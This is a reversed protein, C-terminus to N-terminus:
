SQSLQLLHGYLEILLEVRQHTHTSSLLDHGVDRTLDCIIHICLETFWVIFTFSFCNKKLHSWSLCRPWITEWGM